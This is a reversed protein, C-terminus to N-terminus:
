EFFERLKSQRRVPKLGEFFVMSARRVAELAGPVNQAHRQLEELLPAVDSLKTVPPSTVNIDTATNTNEEEEEETQLNHGEFMCTLLDVQEQVFLREVDESDELSMWESIKSSDQNANVERLLTVTERMDEPVDEDPIERLESERLQAKINEVIVNPNNEDDVDIDESNNTVCMSPSPTSAKRQRRPYRERLMKTYSVPLVGTHAWCRCITRASICDWARQVMEIADLIHPMHGENLGKTGAKAGKYFERARAAEGLRAVIECILDYKYRCKLAAIIGADMPQLKATTNAPLSFISVQGRPDKLDNEEHASANDLLLAVPASTKSRITPLFCDYFWKRMTTTDSWARNQSYYNVGPPLPRTSFCNPKASKGIVAIPVRFGTANTCIYLTVRDKAQMNKVGRVVKLDESRLVYSRSPLQRFFLGTEDCNFINEIAFKALKNRLDHLASTYDVMPTQGAGHLKRSKLGNRKIFNQAWGDSAEFKDVQSEQDEKLMREKEMVGLVQIVRKSLPYGQKRLWELSRLLRVELVPYGPKRHRVINGRGHACLARVREQAVPDCARSITKLSVGLDCALSSKKVGRNVMQAVELKQAPTLTVRAKSSRKLRTPTKSSLLARWRDVGLGEKGRMM